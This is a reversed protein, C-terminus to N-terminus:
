AAEPQLGRLVSLNIEVLASVDGQHALIRSTEQSTFLALSYIGAKTETPLPNSPNAVDSAFVTWLRRNDHLASALEPFSGPRRGTCAELRRTVRALTEYELARPTQTTARASAYAQIAKHENAM